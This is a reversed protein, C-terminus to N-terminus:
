LRQRGALEQAGDVKAVEVAGIVDERGAQTGARGPPVAIGLFGDQVVLAEGGPKPLVDVRSPVGATHGWVLGRLADRGPDALV